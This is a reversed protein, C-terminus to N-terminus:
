NANVIVAAPFAYCRSFIRRDFLNIKPTAVLTCVAFFTMPTTQLERCHRSSEVVKTCHTDLICASRSICAYRRKRSSLNIEVCNVLHLRKLSETFGLKRNMEIHCFGVPPSLHHSRRQRQTYGFSDASVGLNSFPRM